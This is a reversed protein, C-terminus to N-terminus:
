KQADQGTLLFLSYWRQDDQWHGADVFGAAEALQLFEQVSYKYSDETHIREGKTFAITDDGIMVQQDCTSRLFM